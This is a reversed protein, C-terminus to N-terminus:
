LGLIRELCDIIKDIRPQDIGLGQLIGAITLLTQPLEDPNGGELHTCLQEIGLIVTCSLCSPSIVVFWLILETM